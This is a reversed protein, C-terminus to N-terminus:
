TLCVQVRVCCSVQLLAEKVVELLFGDYFYRIIQRVVETHAGQVVANCFLLASHFEELEPVVEM